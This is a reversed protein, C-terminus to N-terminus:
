MEATNEARKQNDEVSQMDRHTISVDAVNRSGDMEDRCWPGAGIPSNPSRQENPPTGIVEAIRAAKKVDIRDTHTHTRGGAADAHNRLRQPAEVLYTQIQGATKPHVSVNENTKLGEPTERM